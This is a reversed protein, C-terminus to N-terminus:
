HQVRGLEREVVEVLKARVSRDVEAVGADGALATGPEELQAVGAV